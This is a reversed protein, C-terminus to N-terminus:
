REYDATWVEIGVAKEILELMSPYPIPTLFEGIGSIIKTVETGSDLVYPGIADINVFLCKKIPCQEVPTEPLNLERMMPDTESQFYVPIELPTMAM